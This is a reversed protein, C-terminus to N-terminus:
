PLTVRSLPVFDLLGSIRAICFTERSGDMGELTDGHMELSLVRDIKAPLDLCDDLTRQPRMRRLDVFIQALKVLLHRPDSRRQGSGRPLSNRSYRM